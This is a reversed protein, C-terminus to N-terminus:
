SLAASGAGPRNVVVFGLGTVAIPLLLSLLTLRLDYGVDLGPLSFALMAVFHMSWIGGGMAIAATALWARSPWGITARMRAALDLATYSAAAAILVSLAVLALDHTGAHPM